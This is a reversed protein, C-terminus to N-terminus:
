GGITEQDAYPILSVKYVTNDVGSGSVSCDGLVMSITRTAVEGLTIVVEHPVNAASIGIIHNAVLTSFASPVLVPIDLDIAFVTSDSYADAETNTARSYLDATLNARRAFTFRLINLTEGDVSVSIATSNVAGPLFSFSITCIFTFSDGVMNRQSRLGSAPLAYAVGGTYIVGNSELSIENNQSFVKSLADRFSALDPYANDPNMNGCPVIFKLTTVLAIAPLDGIRIVESQTLSLLGNIYPIVRNKIRDAKEYDGTDTFIRFDYPTEALKPLIYKNKLEDLTIM